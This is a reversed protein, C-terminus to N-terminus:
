DTKNLENLLKKRETKIDVIYKAVQKAASIEGADYYQKMTGYLKEVSFDITSFKKTCMFIDKKSQLALKFILYSNVNKINLDFKEIFQDFHKSSWIKSDLFTTQSIKTKEMLFELLSFDKYNFADEWLPFELQAHRMKMMILKEAFIEFDAMFRHKTGEDYGVYTSCFVTFKNKFAFNYITNRHKENKCITIGITTLYYPINRVYSFIKRIPFKRGTFTKHFQLIETEMVSQSKQMWLNM